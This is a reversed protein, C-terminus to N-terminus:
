IHILSLYWGDEDGPALDVTGSRVARILEGMLNAGPPLGMGFLRDFLEIERSTSPPFIAVANRRAGYRAALAALDEDTGILADVPLCILPNTLRGYFGNVARYQELLGPNEGLVAAVSRPVDLGTSEDFEFQLFRFFRWVEQLEPTWNYFSIPKSRERDREFEALLEDRVAEEGAELPVDIGAIQLAGALFPRAPSGPPSADFVAKILDRPAPAIGLAGEYCALDLAAYLGDDFQKAAGDLMNASPLVEIGRGALALAADAYSAHLTLLAAPADSPISPCDLRIVAASKNVEWDGLPRSDVLDQDFPPNKDSLEDDVLDLDEQPPVDTYGKREVVYHTAHWWVQYVLIVLILIAGLTVLSKTRRTM